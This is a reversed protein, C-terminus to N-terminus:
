FDNKILDLYNEGKHTLTFVYEPGKWNQRILGAKEILNIEDENILYVIKDNSKIMLLVRILLHDMEKQDIFKSKEM